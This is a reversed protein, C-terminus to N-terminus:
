LRRQLEGLEDENPEQQTYDYIYVQPIPARGTDFRRFYVAAVKYKTAKELAIREYDNRSKQGYLILGSSDPREPVYMDLRKLGSLFEESQQQMGGTM